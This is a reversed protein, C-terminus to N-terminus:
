LQPLQPAQPLSQPMQPVAEPLSQPMSPLSQPMSPTEPAASLPPAAMTGLPIVPAVPVLPLPLPAAPYGGAAGGDDVAAGGEDMVTSNTRDDESLYRCSVWGETGSLDVQCWNGDTNTVGTSDGPALSGIVPYSTGPGSRVNVTATTVAALATGATLATLAVCLGALRTLPISM